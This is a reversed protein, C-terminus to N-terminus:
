QVSCDGGVNVCGVRAQRVNAWAVVTVEDVKQGLGTFREQQSLIARNLEALEDLVHFHGVFSFLLKHKQNLLTKSLEDGRAYRIASSKDCRSWSSCFSNLCM